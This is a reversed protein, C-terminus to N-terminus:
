KILKARLEAMSYAIEVGLPALKEAGGHESYGIFHTGAAAAAGAGAASDDIMFTREPAANAQTMAAILMGAKPKPEHVHGSYMRDSLRDFLGHPSLTVRMKDIAGNSAIAIRTGQAELADFLEVVGKSLPVGRGLLEFMELYLESVWNDPLGLGRERGARHIDHLTQGVFLDHVGDRDLPFGYSTLNKAIADCTPGESDVIVGDCDFIVLDPIM